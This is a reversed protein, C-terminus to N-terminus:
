VVTLLRRGVGGVVNLVREVVLEAVCKFVKGSTWRSPIVIRWVDERLPLDRVVGHRIVSDKDIWRRPQRSPSRHDVTRRRFMGSNSDRAHFMRLIGAADLIDDVVKVADVLVFTDAHARVSEARVLSWCWLVNKPM